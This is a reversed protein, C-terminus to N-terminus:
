WRKAGDMGRGSVERVKMEGVAESAECSPLVASTQALFFLFVPQTANSRFAPALSYFPQHHHALYRM